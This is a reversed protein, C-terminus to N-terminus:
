RATMRIAGDLRIVTGNLMRNRIISEVLEAFEPAEGLRKPFPVSEALATRVPEPARRLAPTDFLGPAIAVVRVGKDSLDRAAPLSMGVIGAKSAAYALQGIQGDFAAVSATNVIVGREGDEGPDLPLMAAAALRMVNFTGFLNLDVVKQFEDYPHPGRSSATKSRSGIGACSVAVRLGAGGAHDSAADVAGQVSSEDRVDCYVFRGGTREAIETGLEENVDAITVALGATALREATAAGLGSAGGSILAGRGALDLNTSM